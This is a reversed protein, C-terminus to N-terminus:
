RSLLIFLLVDVSASKQRGDNTVASGTIVGWVFDGDAEADELRKLVVAGVSDGFVQRQSYGLAHV